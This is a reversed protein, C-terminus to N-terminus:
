LLVELRCLAPELYFARECPPLDSKSAVFRRSGVAITLDFVVEVHPTVAAASDASLSDRAFVFFSKENELTHIHSQKL